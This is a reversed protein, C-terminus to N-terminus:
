LLGSLNRGYLTKNKPCYKDIRSMKNNDSKEMRVLKKENKKLSFLWINITAPFYMSQMNQVSTALINEFCSIFM